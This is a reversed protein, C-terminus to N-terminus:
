SRTEEELRDFARYAKAELETLRSFNMQPIYISELEDHLAKARKLRAHASRLAQEYLPDSEKAAEFLGGYVRRAPVLANTVFLNAGPIYLHAARAPSIPDLFLTTDLGAELAAANVHRILADASGGFPTPLSVTNEPSFQDEFSVLGKWTHASLFFRKERGTRARPSPLLSLIEKLAARERRADANARNANWVCAAASLYARASEYESRMATQLREISARDAALAEANLHDAFSLLEDRAGPVAPDFAHPPTADFIACNITEDAFGDLSDPDSSCFFLSVAHGCAQQRRAARKMFGSKGTGPAGKIYFVRKRNEFIVDFGSVFGRETNAGAFCRFETKM